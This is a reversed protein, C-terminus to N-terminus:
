YRYIAFVGSTTPMKEKPLVIIESKTNNALDLFISLTDESSVSTGENVLTKGDELVLTNVRGELLANSIESIEDSARDILFNAKYKDILKNTKELFIPEIVKWVDVLLEQDNHTISELSRDIGVELLNPNSSIKRFEGQHEALGLIIFPHKDPNHIQKTIFRDIYNFYRQTDIKEEESKTNHGHYNAQKIGGYSGVNLKKGDIETGLVEDKTIELGEDFQIKELSYRNAKYVVFNDKSLGLIFYSDDSQFHRLLPKLNFSTGVSVEQKFPRNIRYISTDHEDLLIALGSLNHIWFDEDVYIAHLRKEILKQTEKNQIKSLAEHMLNKFVIRDAKNDPATKHSEMYISVRLHAKNKIIEPPFNTEFKM